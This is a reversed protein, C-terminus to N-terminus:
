RISQSKHHADFVRRIDDATQHPREMDDQFKSAFFSMGPVEGRQNRFHGFCGSRCVSLGKM